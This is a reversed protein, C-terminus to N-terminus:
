FKNLVDDLVVSIYELAPIIHEYEMRSPGIVAVRGKLKKKNGFTSVVISCHSVEPCKLEEGIYVKVKNDFDRNIIELLKQKEEIMSILAKLRSADQFEPQELIHSIGKYFIKDHWDLFSVIGTYKTIKSIIESTNELVDELQSIKSSCDKVIREKEEDLLEMQAILFDVYYRYGRNTPLRGGSTYPHTLYGDKELEYLINRITASSLGFKEALDDSAVPSADKIYKNIASSLVSKKRSNYDVTRVM